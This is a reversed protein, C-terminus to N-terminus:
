GDLRSILECISQVSVFNEEVLENDDIVVQFYDELSIIIEMIKISDIGLEIFLKTENNLITNDDYNMVEKIIKIVGISLTNLKENVM